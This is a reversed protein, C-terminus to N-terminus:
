PGLLPGILHRLMDVGFGVLNPSAGFGEGLSAETICFARESCANCRKYELGWLLRELALFWAGSSSWYNAFMRLDLMALGLV